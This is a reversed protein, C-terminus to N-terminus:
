ERWRKESSFSDTFIRILVYASLLTGLHIVPGFHTDQIIFGVLYSAWCGALLINIWYHLKRHGKVVGLSITILGVVMLFVAWYIDGMHYVVHIIQSHPDDKFMSRQIVLFLGVTFTELGTIVQQYYRHM